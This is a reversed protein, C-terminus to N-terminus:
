RDIFDGFKKVGPDNWDGGCRELSFKILNFDGEISWPLDLNAKM